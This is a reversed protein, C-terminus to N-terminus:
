SKCSDLVYGIIERELNLWKVSWRKVDLLKAAVDRAMEMSIKACCYSFESDDKNKDRGGIAAKLFIGSKGILEDFESDQRLMEIDMM